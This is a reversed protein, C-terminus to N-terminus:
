SCTCDTARSRREGARAARRPLDRRGRSPASHIHVIDPRRGASGAAVAADGDGPHHRQGRHRAAAEGAASRAARFRGEARGPSRDNRTECREGPPHVPVGRADGQRHDLHAEQRAAPGLDALLLALAVPRRDAARHRRVSRAPLRRLIGLGAQDDRHRLGRDGQQVDVIEGRLERASWLPNLLKLYDDPLLPTTARAALGRLLNIKPSTATEVDKAPAESWRTLSRIKSNM